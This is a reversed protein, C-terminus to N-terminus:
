AATEPGVRVMLKGTNSGDFLRLLAQPANELGEVIDYRAQIKGEQLWRSIAEAAEGYRQQYDFVIFGEMRARNVLLSLYNAPGPPPDTANYISIAGCIVVRARRNLRALAIELIQGGVNDFFVDIGKPCAQRMADSMDETTKYDIAADFGLDQTLWRCKDESGAVGVVRCGQIKAIQGVLSGVAGAAGSVLVTEGAKPNGVDLLGFYATMGTMGLPGLALPLAVGEPIPTLEEAPLTAYEQWGVIGSVKQGPRFGPDGSEVVEGIALGRMVAGLEVPPIYSPRDTMWGRMAPDLSLYISRVLVEGAAPSPVPATVKEFDGAKPLGEPRAALLIQTQTQTM